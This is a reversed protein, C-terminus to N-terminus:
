CAVDRKRRPTSPSKNVVENPTFYTLPLEYARALRSLMKLSVSIKGGEIDALYAQSTGAREAVETQSWGRAKRAELLRSILFEVEPWDELDIKQRGSM